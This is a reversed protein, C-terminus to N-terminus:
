LRKIRADRNHYRIETSSAFEDETILNSTGAYPVYLNTLRLEQRIVVGTIRGCRQLLIEMVFTDVMSAAFWVM